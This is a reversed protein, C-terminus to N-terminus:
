GSYGQSYVVVAWVTGVVLLVVICTHARALAGARIRCRQTCRIIPARLSLRYPLSTADRFKQRVALAIRCPLRVCLKSRACFVELHLSSM